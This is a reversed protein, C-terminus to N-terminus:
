RSSAGEIRLRVAVKIAEPLTEKRSRAFDRLAAFSKEDFPVVVLRIKVRAGRKAALRGRFEKLNSRPFRKAFQIIQRQDHSPMGQIVRAVETIRKPDRLALLRYGADQLIRGDRVMEQVKPPLELLRVISRVLHPSVHLSKALDSITPYQSQLQKLDTALTIWDLRKQKPGKLDVFLEALRQEDSKEKM